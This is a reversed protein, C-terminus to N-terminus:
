GVKVKGRISSINPITALVSLDLFEEVEEVKKFSNDLLEALLAAIGGIVLGLIAGLITIKLRNPKVSEMPVSAPEMIRYKSEAEERMLSQSIESGTLQNKFKEFIDRASAVDNELNRMQIEIQPQRSIRDRLTSLSVEFDNMKNRFIMERAQLIFFEALDAQDRSRATKFQNDVMRRILSEIEQLWNSIRLNANLVKPDSWTYKSMLDALRQTEAFTNNMLSEYENGTNLVLESKKYDALRTRVQSQDNINDSIILKINDIDAMIARINTEATVSEDVQNQIYQAAFVAKKQEADELNTKYRALQEDSFNLAGRAGSLERKLREGKFVEALKTAINMAETPDSSEATIEIINEGNFNVDINDRLEAFLIYYVLNQVSIDPRKAHIKQAERIIEPDDGLGLEDILRKLYGSSIIENHIAILRSKQQFSSFRNQEQGPMLAQLQKSLFTTQGIVVMTSSQYRMDLLFSGGFAIATVLILPLIFTWKRRRFIALADKIDVTTEKNKQDM